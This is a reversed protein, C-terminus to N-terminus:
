DTSTISFHKLVIFAISNVKLWCFFKITSKRKNRTINLLKGIMGTTLSFSLFKCKSKWSTRGCHKYFFHHISWWKNCKFVILIKDINDFAIVYKSLKKICLKRKNIEHHFYNETGTIENLRFRTQESLNIKNIENM